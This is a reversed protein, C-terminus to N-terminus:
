KNKYFALFRKFVENNYGEVCPKGDEYKAKEYLKYTPASWWFNKIGETGDIDLTNLQYVSFHFNQGDSQICQVVVPESLEKADLGFKQQACLAAATFSEVLSRAHIQNETVPLDTINKVEEPDHNIFITHINKMPSNTTIPYTTEKKYINTKTFGITWHLPSLDPLYNEINTNADVIPTLPALSTILDMKLCLNLLKSEKEICTSFTADNVMIRNQAIGLGCLSECLQLFKYSINHMKRTSSIGYVRPFVWMPRDPDKLKPLKVQEADYITSTYVIRKVLDDIHNPIDKVLDQVKKPLEDDIKLTKTLLCAQPVGEQLVNHDKYTLCSSEKWDPDIKPKIAIEFKKSSGELTVIETPDRVQYGMSTVIEEAKTIYVRRQKQRQWLLSIARGIHQKCLVQTFKM